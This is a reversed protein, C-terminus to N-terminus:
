RLPPSSPPRDAQRRFPESTVVIRVLAKASPDAALTASLEQILPKDFYGLERGLAFALLRRLLNTEFDGAKGDLVRKLEGPGTFARGDPFRGGADVPRGAELDRWRGTADYNELGFGIPDIRDHCRACDARSRHLDLEERLTRGRAEGAEGPLEGATPLPEGPDEGLLRELVWAGRRVPNTRAPSSTAVLVSGLGLVGGRRADPLLVPRFADGEVGPIGYHAAL